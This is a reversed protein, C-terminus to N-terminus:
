RDMVKLSASVNQLTPEGRVAATAGTASLLHRPAAQGHQVRLLLPGPEPSVEDLVHGAVDTPAQPYYM